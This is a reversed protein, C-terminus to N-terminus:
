EEGGVVAEKLSTQRVIKPVRHAQQPNILKTIVKRMTKIGEM